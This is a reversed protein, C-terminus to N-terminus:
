QRDGRHKSLAVVMGHAYGQLPREIEDSRDAVGSALHIQKGAEIYEQSPHAIKAACQLHRLVTGHQGSRRPIAIADCHRFPHKARSMMQDAILRRCLHV